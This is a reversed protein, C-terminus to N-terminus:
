CPTEPRGDNDLSSSDDAVWWSSGPPIKVFDPLFVRHAKVWIGNPALGAPALSYSILGLTIKRQEPEELSNEFLHFDFYKTWGSLYAPKRFTRFSTQCHGL